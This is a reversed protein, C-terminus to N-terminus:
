VGELDFDPIYSTEASGLDQVFGDEIGLAYLRSEVADYEEKTIHRSLEPYAALDGCPTYQSMLSLMVEGPEFNDAIWELVGYSNSIANPLILHRIIVGSQMIGNDDVKYPGVQRYMELIAKTATEFYDPANSYRAALSNDSYKLDPLYIQVRGELGKLNEFQEYASSNWVVPIKPRPELAKIILPAFHGATVLNINHVGSDELGKIIERLRDVSIDKGSFGRSIESNQCFVCGLPCGSFFIAGSGKEGSICPEEWDHRAARAVRL